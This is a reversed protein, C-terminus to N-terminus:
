KVVEIQSPGFVLYQTTLKIEPSSLMKPCDHIENFIVGDHGNAKAVEIAQEIDFSKEDAKVVYPNNITLVVEIIKQGEPEAYIAGFEMEEMEMTLREQLDWDGQQEARQIQGLYEQIKNEHSIQNPVTRKASYDAYEQAEEMSNTFWFGAESTRAKQDQYKLGIEFGNFEQNTGHYATYQKAKKYWNNSSAQANEVMERGKDYANQYAPSNIMEEEQKKKKADYLEQASPVIGRTRFDNIEDILDKAFGGKLTSRMWEDQIESEAEEFERMAEEYEEPNEYDEEHPYTLGTDYGHFDEQIEAMTDWAWQEVKQINKWDTKKPMSRVEDWEESHRPSNPLKLDDMLALLTVYGPSDTIDGRYDQLTNGFGSNEDEAATMLDEIIDTISVDLIHKLGYESEENQLIKEIYDTITLVGSGIEGMNIKEEMDEFANIEKAIGADEGSTSIWEKIMEKYVPKPDSNSKGQVQTINGLTDIEMTIHPNNKPDRLSYITVTGGEVDECYSGVCHDMMEESGETLLDNKSTVKQVTWGQWEPNNWEPGYMILEPNTPEYIKGEGQGTMMRHWEELAAIAQEISYSSIDPRPESRLAWDYIEQINERFGWYKRQELPPLTNFKDESVGNRLKRMNVLIWKSILSYDNAFQKENNYYPDIQEQQIPVLEQLQEITLSPNQRFENVLTQSNAGQSTIFQIIDPTAGLSQLYEEVNGATLIEKLYWNM